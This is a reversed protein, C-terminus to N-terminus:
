DSSGILEVKLSYGWLLEMAITKGNAMISSEHSSGRAPRDSGSKM